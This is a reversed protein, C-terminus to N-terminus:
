LFVFYRGSLARFTSRAKVGHGWEEGGECGVEAGREEGLQAVQPRM